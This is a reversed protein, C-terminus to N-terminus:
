YLYCAVPQTPSDFLNCLPLDLDLRSMIRNNFQRRFCFCRLSIRARPKGKNFVALVWFLIPFTGGTPGLIFSHKRVLQMQAVTSTINQLRQLIFLQRTNWSSCHWASTRVCLAELSLELRRLLAWKGRNKSACVGWLECWLKRVSLLYTDSKM